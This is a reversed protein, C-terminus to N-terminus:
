RTQDVQLGAIQHGIWTVAHHLAYTQLRKFEPIAPELRASPMSTRTKNGYIATQAVLQDSMWLLGLPHAQRITHSRYVEVILRGPGSEPQLM